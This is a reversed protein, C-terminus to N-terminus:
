SPGGGGYSGYSNYGNNYGRNYSYHTVVGEDSASASPSPSNDSAPKAAALTTPLTLTLTLMALLSVVAARCVRGTAHPLSDSSEM